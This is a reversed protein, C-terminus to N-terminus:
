VYRMMRMRMAMADRVADDDDDDDDVWVSTVDIDDHRQVPCAGANRLSDDYCDEQM